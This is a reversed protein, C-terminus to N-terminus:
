PKVLGIILSLHLPGYFRSDLSNSRNDGLVFVHGVPVTFALRDKAMPFTREKPPLYPEDLRQGNITVFGGTFEIRESGLAVVRKIALDTYGPDRIVVLDGRHPGRLQFAWRNLLYTEGNHLTPVMSDGQVEITSGVFHTILLYFCTSWLGICVLSYSLRTERANLVRRLWSARGRLSAREDPLM